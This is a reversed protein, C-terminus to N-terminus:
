CRAGCSVNGDLFLFNRDDDMVGQRRMTAVGSVFVEMERVVDEPDRPLKKTERM